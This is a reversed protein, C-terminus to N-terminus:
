NMLTAILAYSSVQYSSGATNPQKESKITAVMSQNNNQNM